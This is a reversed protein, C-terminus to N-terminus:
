RGSRERNSVREGSAEKEDATETLLRVFESAAASFVKGRRHIIGILRMYEGDTFDLAVLM